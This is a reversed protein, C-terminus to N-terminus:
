KVLIWTLREGYFEAQVADGPRLESKSLVKEGKMLFSGSDLLIQIKGQEHTDLSIIDLVPHVSTVSGTLRQMGNTTGRWVASLNVERIPNGDKPADGATKFFLRTGLRPCPVGSISIYKYVWFLYQTGPELPAEPTIIMQAGQWKVTGGVGFAGTLITGLGYRGGAANVSDLFWRFDYPATKKEGTTPDTYPILDVARDLALVVPAKPDHAAVHMKAGTMIIPPRPCEMAARVSPAPVLLGSATLTSILAIKFMFPCIRGM